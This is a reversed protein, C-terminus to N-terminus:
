LPNIKQANELCVSLVGLKGLTSSSAGFIDVFNDVSFAPLCSFRYLDIAQGTNACNV